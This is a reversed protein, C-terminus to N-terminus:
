TSVEDTAAARDLQERLDAIRGRLVTAYTGFCGGFVGM